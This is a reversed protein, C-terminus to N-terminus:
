IEVTYDIIINDTNKVYLVSIEINYIEYVGTLGVYVKKDDINFLTGPKAQIGLHKIKKISSAAEAQMLEFLNQSSDFSGKLQATHKNNGM